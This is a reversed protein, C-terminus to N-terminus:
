GVRSRGPLPTPATHFGHAPAWPDGAREISRQSSPAQEMQDSGKLSPTSPTLPGASPPTMNGLVSGAPRTLLEPWVNPALQTSGPGALLTPAVAIQSQTLLMTDLAQAFAEASPFRDAPQKALARAVIEALAPPVAPNVQSLAPPPTHVHQYLVGLPTTGRFPLQGTLFLYLVIGLAYIDTHADVSGGQAQEPAMFEPTGIINPHQLRAIVQAEREFRERFGPRAAAEPLIVKLAVLRKLRPHLAKYVQAMGGVGLPELVQYQGIIKGRLDDQEM